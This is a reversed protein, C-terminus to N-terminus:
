LFYAAALGVAALGAGVRNAAAGATPITTAGTTTPGVPTHTASGTGTATGNSPPPLISSSPGTSLPPPIVTTYSSIPTVTSEPCYTTTETYVDTITTSEGEPTTTQTYITTLTTVSSTPAATSSAVSSTATYSPTCVDAPLSFTGNYNGSGGYVICNKSCAADGSTESTQWCPAFNVGLPPEGALNDNCNGGHGIANEDCRIIINTALSDGACYAQGPKACTYQGTTENYQVQASALAATFILAAVTKM